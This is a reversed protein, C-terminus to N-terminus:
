HSYYTSYNYHISSCEQGNTGGVDLFGGAAQASWTSIKGAQARHGFPKTGFMPFPPWIHLLKLPSVSSIPIYIYIYICPNPSEMNPSMVLQDRMTTASCIFIGIAM